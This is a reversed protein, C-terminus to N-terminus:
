ARYPYSWQGENEAFTLSPDTPWAKHYEPDYRAAVRPVRRVIRDFRAVGRSVLLAGVNMEQRTADDGAPNGRRCGDPRLRPRPLIHVQTAGVLLRDIERLAEQARGAKALQRVLAALAIAKGTEPQIGGV